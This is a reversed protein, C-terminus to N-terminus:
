FKYIIIVGECKSVNALVQPRVAVEFIAMKRKEEIVEENKLSKDHFNWFFDSIM